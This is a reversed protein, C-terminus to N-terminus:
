GKTLPEGDKPGRYAMSVGVLARLNAKMIAVEKIARAAEQHWWDARKKSAELEAAVKRNLAGARWLGVWYGVGAAIVVAIMLGWM